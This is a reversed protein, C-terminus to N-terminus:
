FNGMLSLGAQGVGLVAGAGLWRRTGVRAAGKAATETKPAPLVVWLVGGAALAVSGAVFAITAGTGLARARDRLPVAGAYCDNPKDRDPCHDLSEDYKAKAVGALVAGAILGAVGTGGVVLAVTPPRGVSRRSPAAPPSTSPQETADKKPRPPEPPAAPAQPIGDARPEINRTSELDELVPVAVTVVSSDKAVTTAQWPRKGPASASVTHPGPDVPIPTGWIMRQLLVGDSKVEVNEPPNTVTIRLRPVKPELASARARAVSERTSQGAQKAANVVDLFNNWASATKGIHELCEALNFQTGMGPDLRQSEDFKPCAEAYNKQAMLKRADDFLARAAIRDRQTPEAHAVVPLIVPTLVLESAIAIRLVWRSMSSENM